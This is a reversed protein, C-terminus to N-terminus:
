TSDPAVQTPVPVLEQLNTQPSPWISPRSTQSSPDFSPTPHLESQEPFAFPYEQLAKSGETQTSTQPSL